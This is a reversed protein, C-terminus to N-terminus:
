ADILIVISVGGLYAGGITALVDVTASVETGPPSPPISAPVNVTATVTQAAGPALSFTAPAITAWSSVSAPGATLAITQTSGTPNRVDFTWGATRGSISTQFTAITQEGQNNTTNGDYPHYVNVFLGYYFGKNNLIAPPTPWTLLQESGPFGSRALDVFQSSIPMRPLGIGFISWSLDVRTQFASCNVSLNRVTATVSAPLKQPWFDLSTIDQHYFTPLGGTDFILRQDYTAPDPDHVIDKPVRLCCSARLPPRQLSNCISKRGVSNPTRM